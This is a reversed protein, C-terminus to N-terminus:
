QAGVAALNSTSKQVRKLRQFYKEIQDDSYKSVDVPEIGLEKELQGIKEIFEKRKVINM